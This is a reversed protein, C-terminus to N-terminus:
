YEPDWDVVIVGAALDVKQIVHKLYPILREREGKVVLVENAGTELIHDLIGYDDGQANLVKMGELDSWYFGSGSDPLDKRPVALEANVYRKALDRDQCDNFHIVYHNGLAKISYGSMPQWTNNVLIHWHKFDLINSSEAFVQLKLDGKIGHPAGIRAVVILKDPNVRPAISDM